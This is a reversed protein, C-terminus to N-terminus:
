DPEFFGWGDPTFGRAIAIKTVREEHLWIDEATLSVEPVTVVFDSSGEEESVDGAYGFMALAKELAEQDAGEGPVLFIDLTVITDKGVPLNQNEKLDQVTDNTESKQEAFDWEQNM